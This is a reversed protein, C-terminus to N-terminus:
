KRRSAMLKRRETVNYSRYSSRELARHGQGQTRKEGFEESVSLNKRLERLKANNRTRKDKGFDRLQDERLVLTKNTGHAGWRPKPLNYRLGRTVIRHKENIWIKKEGTEADITYSVRKLTNGSGCAPCFQKTTDTVLTYCAHCRLVWTRVHKIQRGEVGIATIGLQLLTNQVTFDTTFCSVIQQAEEPTTVGKSADAAAFKVPKAEGKEPKQTRKKQLLLADPLTHINDATIWEDNGAFDEELRDEISEDWSLIDESWSEDSLQKALAIVRLDTESLFGIDGTEHTKGLVEEYYEIDPSMVILEFTLNELMHRHRTDRIEALVEPITYFKDALKHIEHSNLFGGTDIVCCREVSMSDIELKELKQLVKDESNPSSDAPLTQQSSKPKKPSEHSNDTKEPAKKM